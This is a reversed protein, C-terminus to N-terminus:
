VILYLATFGETFAGIEVGADFFCESAGGRYWAVEWAENKWATDVDVVFVEGGVSDNANGHVGDVM